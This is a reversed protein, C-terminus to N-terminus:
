LNGKKREKGNNGERVAGGFELKRERARETMFHDCPPIMSSSGSMEILAHQQCSLNRFFFRIPCAMHMCIVHVTKDM